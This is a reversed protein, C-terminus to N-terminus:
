TTRLNYYNFLKRFPPFWGHSAGFTENYEEGVAGKLMEFTSRAKGQILHLSVPSRKPIPDDIWLVLLQETKSILGTRNRTIIADTGPASKIAEKIKEKG